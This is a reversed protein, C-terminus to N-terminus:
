RCREELDWIYVGREDPDEVLELPFEIEIPTAVARVRACAGDGCGCGGPVHVGLSPDWGGWQPANAQLHKRM